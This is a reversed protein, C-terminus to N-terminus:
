IEEFLNDHSGRSYTEYEENSAITKHKDSMEKLQSLTLYGRGVTLYKGIPTNTNLNSDCSECSTIGPINEEFLNNLDENEKSNKTTKEEVNIDPIDLKIKPDEKKPFFNNNITDKIFNKFTLGKNFVVKELYVGVATGVLFIAIDGFISM